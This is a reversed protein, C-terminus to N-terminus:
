PVGEPAEDGFVYCNSLETLHMLVWRELYLGSGGLDHLSHYESEEKRELGPLHCEISDDAEVKTVPNILIIETPAPYDFVMDVQCEVLVHHM